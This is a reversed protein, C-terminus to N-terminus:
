AKAPVEVPIDSATPAPHQKPPEPRLRHVLTSRTWGADWGARRLRGIMEQLEDSSSALHPAFRGVEAFAERRVMFCLASVDDIPTFNSPHDLQLKRTRQGLEQLSGYSVGADQSGGAPAIAPAILALDSRSNLLATMRRLCYPTLLISADVFVVFRGETRDLGLNCASPRSGPLFNRAHPIERGDLWSVLDAQGEHVVLVTAPDPQGSAVGLMAPQLEAPSTAGTVVVSLRPIAAEGDLLQLDRSAALSLSHRRRTPQIPQLRRLVRDLQHAYTHHRHIHQSAGAAMADLREPDALLEAAQRALDDADQFRLVQRGPALYREVGPYGADVAQLSGCASIQFFSGNPDLPDPVDSVSAMDTKGRHVNLTIKAARYANAAEAPPVPQNIVEVNGGGLGEWMRGVVKVHADIGSLRDVLERRAPFGTGILLIDCADAASAPREWRSAHDVPDCGHPLSLTNPNGDRRHKFLSGRDQIFVHDFLCGRNVSFGIEQPEDIMWVATVAGLDRVAELVRPPILLGHNFFVLDPRQERVMEVLEEPHRGKRSFLAQRRQSDLLEPRVFRETWRADAPRPAFTSVQHGLAEFGRRLWPDLFTDFWVPGAEVHLIQLPPRQPESRVCRELADASRKWSFANATELAQEALTRRLSSDRCARLLNAALAARDGPDSLLATKPNAYDQGGGCSTMVVPVGRCMAELPPLGFGESKSAFVFLDLTDLWDSLEQRSPRLTFEMELGLPASPPKSGYLALEVRTGLAEKVHRYAALADDLGKVAAEHYLMGIRLPRDAGSDEPLADLTGAFDCGNIVVQSTVGLRRELEQSLWTSVCLRELPLRYTEDVDDPEGAWASEYGQVLYFGRGKEIPLDAVPQATSWLTALIADADPLSAESISEVPLFVISPHLACWDPPHTALSAVFVRHGREALRNAQGFIVMTGGHLDSSPAVFTVRRSGERRWREAPAMLCGASPDEVPEFGLERLRARQRDLGEFLVLEAAQGTLRSLADDSSAATAWALHAPAAPTADDGLAVVDIGERGLAEALDAQPAPDAVIHRVGWERQLAEATRRPDPRVISAEARRAEGPLPPRPEGAVLAQLAAEYSEVTTQTGRRLKRGLRESVWRWLATADTLGLAQHVATTHAGWFARVARYLLWDLSVPEHWSWEQDIYALGGDATLLLNDPTADLLRPHVRADVDTLSATEALRGIAELWVHWCLAFAEPAEQQRRLAQLMRWSLSIAHPHFPEQEIWHHTLWGDDTSADKASRSVAPQREVRPEGGGDALTVTTRFAPRRRVNVKRAAWDPEPIAPAAGARSALVLFANSSEILRGDAALESLVLPDCFREDRPGDYQEVPQRCWEILNLRAVDEAAAHRGNIVTTPLKYDPFPLLWNQRVLGADSLLRALQSHSFTEVGDGDVYGELGVHAPAGHDEACGAFYKLGLRNEIALVLVGSPSLAREALELVKRFAALPQDEAAERVYLRAYELVGILAVIDFGGDFAVDDFRGAAVRVNDLDRCRLAAISARQASGEFAVVESVTEGLYRTMAGCGAGLELARATRPLDLVRLLNSREPSFHYRSPWDEIAATLEPSDSALNNADLLVDQLRREVEAGDTYDTLAAADNPRWVGSAADHTFDSPFRRAGSM